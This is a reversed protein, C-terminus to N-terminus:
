SYRAKRDGRKRARAKINATKSGHRNTKAQNSFNSTRSLAEFKSLRGKLLKARVEKWVASKKLQSAKQPWAMFLLRGKYLTHLRAYDHQDVVELEYPIHLLFLQLKRRTAQDFRGKFEVVKISGDLKVVSFDARYKKVKAGKEVQDSFDFVLPSGDPWQERHWSKIRKKQVLYELYAGYDSEQKSDFSYWEGSIIRNVKKIKSYDM